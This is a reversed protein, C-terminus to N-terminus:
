LDTCRGERLEDLADKALKDLRGATVDSEFQADWKDGDFAAFWERFTALEEPSLKRVANEIKQIDSM